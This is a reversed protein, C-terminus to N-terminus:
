RAVAEATTKNDGTLMVVRLGYSRLTRIAEPATKKIPDSVGILGVVVGDVVIFMVTQGERRLGEAREAGIARDIKFEELLQANGLIVRKGEVTGSIGKGPITRFNEVSGIRLGRAAAADLIAAALPHESGRELSASLRLLEAEALN